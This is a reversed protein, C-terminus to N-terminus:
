KEGGMKICKGFDRSWGYGVNSECQSKEGREYAVLHSAFLIALVAVMIFLKEFFLM